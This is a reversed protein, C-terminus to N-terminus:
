RPTVIATATWFSSGAEGTEPDRGACRIRKLQEDNM